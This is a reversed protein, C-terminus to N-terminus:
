ILERHLETVIGIYRGSVMLKKTKHFSEYQLSM